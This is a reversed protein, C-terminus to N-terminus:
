NLDTKDLYINCIQLLIHFDYYDALYAIEMYEDDTFNSSIEIGYLFGLISEVIKENDSDIHFTSSEKFKFSNQFYYYESLIWSHIQYTKNSNMTIKIDGGGKDNLVLDFLTKLSNLPKYLSNINIEKIKFQKEKEHEDNLYYKTLPYPPNNLIRSIELIDDITFDKYKYNNNNEKFYKNPYNCNKSAFTIYSIVKQSKSNLFDIKDLYFNNLFADHSFCNDFFKEIFTDDTNYLDELEQYNNVKFEKLVNDCANHIKNIEKIKQEFLMKQLNKNIIKM